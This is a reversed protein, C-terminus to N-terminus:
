NNLENTKMLDAASIYQLFLSLVGFLRYPFGVGYIFADMSGLSLTLAQLHFASKPM